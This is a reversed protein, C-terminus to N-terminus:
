LCNSKRTMPGQDKVKLDTNTYKSLKEYSL